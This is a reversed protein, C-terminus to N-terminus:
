RKSPSCRRPQLMLEGKSRFPVSFDNSKLDVSALDINPRLMAYACASAHGKAILVKNGSRCKDTKIRRINFTLHDDQFTVDNCRLKSIENNDTRRFCTADLFGGYGGSSVIFDLDVARFRFKRYYGQRLRKVAKCIRVM